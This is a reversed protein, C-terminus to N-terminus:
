VDAQIEVIQLFCAGAHRKWWMGNCVPLHFGSQPLICRPDVSKLAAKYPLTPSWWLHVAETPWLMSHSIHWQQWPMLVLRTSLVNRQKTWFVTCVIQNHSKHISPQHQGDSRRWSPLATTTPNNASCWWLIIHLSARVTAAKNFAHAVHLSVLTVESSCWNLLSAPSPWQQRM